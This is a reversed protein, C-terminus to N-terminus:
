RWRRMDIARVNLYLFLTMMAAFYYLDRLDIVGRGISDFRSTPSIWRAIAGMWSGPGFESTFFPDGILVLLLLAVLSVLFSVIQDQTFSSLFMAIAIFTGGMLIGGLYGGVVPGWDLPGYGAVTVPAYLTMVMCGLVLVLGALFKALVIHWTEIASTLLFEITGQKREEAWMRMTIGPIVIAFALPVYSFFVDMTAQARLFFTRFFIIKLFFVFVALFAYAIPSLFLQKLEKTTLVFVSRM